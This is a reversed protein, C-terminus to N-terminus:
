GHLWNPFVPIGYGLTQECEKLREELQVIKATYNVEEELPQERKKNAKGEWNEVLHEMDNNRIQLDHSKGLV